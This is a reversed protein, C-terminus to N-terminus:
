NRLLDTGLAERLPAPVKISGDAQQHQECIAPFLRSTAVGSANLTHVFENKGTDKRKFRMNGRRSQYDRGNSISSVERYDGISPFWVEVDYTV